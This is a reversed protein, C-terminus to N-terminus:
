HVNHHGEGIIQIIGREIDHEILAEAEALSIEGVTDVLMDAATAHAEAYTPATIMWGDDSVIKCFQM